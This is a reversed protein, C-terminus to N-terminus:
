ARLIDSGILGQEDHIASICNSGFGPAVIASVNEKEVSSLAIIDLNLEEIPLFIITEYSFRNTSGIFHMSSELYMPTSTVGIVALRFLYHIQM